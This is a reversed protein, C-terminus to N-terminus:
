SSAGSSAESTDALPGDRRPGGQIKEFVAIANLIADAHSKPIRRITLSSIDEKHSWAKLWLSLKLHAADALNMQVQVMEDPNLQGRELRGAPLSFKMASIADAQMRAHYGLMTRIEYWDGVSGADIAETIEIRHTPGGDRPILPM